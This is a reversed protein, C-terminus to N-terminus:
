YKVKASIIHTNGPDYSAFAYDVQWDVDKYGLGIAIDGGYFGLRVPFKKNLIVEKGFQFKFSEGDEDSVGLTFLVDDITIKGLTPKKNLNLNAAVGFKFGFSPDHVNGALVNRMMLGVRVNKLEKTGHKPKILVGMDVACGRHEDHVSELKLLKLNGGVSLSFPYNKKFTLGKGYSLGITTETVDIKKSEGARKEVVDEALYLLGVNGGLFYVEPQIVCFSDMNAKSVGYLGAHSFSLGTIEGLESLGAPNWYITEMDDCVAVVSKGMGLNRAGIGVDNFGAYSNIAGITVLSFVVLFYFGKKLM